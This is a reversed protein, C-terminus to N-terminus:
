HLAERVEESAFGAGPTTRCLEAFGSGLALLYERFRDPNTHLRTFIAQLTELGNDAFFDNSPGELNVPIPIVGDVSHHHLLERHDGGLVRTFYAVDGMSLDSVMADRIRTAVLNDSDPVGN